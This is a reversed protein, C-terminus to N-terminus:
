EKEIRLAYIYGNFKEKNERYFEWNTLTNM